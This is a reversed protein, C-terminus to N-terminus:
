ADLLGGKMAGGVGPLTPVDVGRFFPHSLFTTVDGLRTAANRDLLKTCLDQAAPSLKGDPVFPKLAMYSLFKPTSKDYFPPLGTLMDYVACGVCWWASAAARELAPEFYAEFSHYYLGPSEWHHESPQRYDLFAEPMLRVTNEPTIRLCCPDLYFKLSSAPSWLQMHGVASGICAAYVRVTDEPLGEPHDKLMTHVTAHPAFPELWILDYSTDFKLQRPEICPHPPLTLPYTDTYQRPCRCLFYRMQTSENEVLWQRHASDEIKLLKVFDSLSAAAHLVRPWLPPPSAHADDYADCLFQLAAVATFLPSPSVLSPDKRPPPTIRAVDCQVAPPEHEWAMKLARGTSQRTSRLEM